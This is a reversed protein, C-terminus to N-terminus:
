YFKTFCRKIIRIKQYAKKTIIDIHTAPKLTKLVIVGLDKQSDVSELNDEPSCNQLTEIKQTTLKSYSFHTELKFFRTEFFFLSNQTLFTLKLNLSALKWYSFRTKLLFLSNRTLFTLKSYSPRASLETM